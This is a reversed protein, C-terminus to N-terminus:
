LDKYMEYSQREIEDINYSPADQPQHDAKGAKEIQSPDTIGESHWKRLIKDMYPFSLKGTNTIMIDYAEDILSDPIGLETWEAIIQKQKSSFSSTLGFKRRLMTETNFRDNMIKIRAEAKPIDDIGAEIWDRAVAKMYAPSAKDIKFCYEVLMMTVECPLGIEEVLIMLTQQEAHRPPRGALREYTDFLYKVAKDGNVAGAIIKPPFHTESSLAARVEPTSLEGTHEPAPSYSLAPSTTVQESPYYEGESGTLIGANTWYLLADSIDEKAAGIAAAISEERISVDPYALLYLLVKIQTGSALKLHNNDAVCSPVAFVKRWAGLNIRYDLIITEKGSFYKQLYKNIIDCITQKQLVSFKRNKGYFFTLTFLSM